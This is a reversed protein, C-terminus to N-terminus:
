LIIAIACFLAINQRLNCHFALLCADNYRERAAYAKAHPMAYAIFNLLFVYAYTM